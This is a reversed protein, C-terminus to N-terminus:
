KMCHHCSFNPLCSVSFSTNKYPIFYENLLHPVQVEIPSSLVLLKGELGAWQRWIWQWIEFNACDWIRVVLINVLPRALIGFTLAEM